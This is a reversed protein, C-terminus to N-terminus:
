EGEAEAELKAVKKVKEVDHGFLGAFKRMWTALDKKTNEAEALPKLTQYIKWMLFLQALPILVSIISSIM